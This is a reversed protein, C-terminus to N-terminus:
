YPTMPNADSLEKFEQETCLMRQTGKELYRLATGPAVDELWPSGATTQPMSIASVTTFPALTMGATDVDYVGRGKLLELFAAM